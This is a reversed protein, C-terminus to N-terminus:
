SEIEPEDLDDVEFDLHKLRPFRKRLEDELRDVEDALAEMMREGFDHAFKEHDFDPRELQEKVWDVHSKAIVRGDYEIEAKLRFRDAALIRTKVDRVGVVSPEATLFAVAGEEVDKPIAPGLILQRNRYGLWIAVLGLLLGIAISSAADFRPDGTWYALGIGASAVLVGLTAVFDEFLVALVTPDSTTKIFEIFGKDGKDASVARLAMLFVFGDMLFSTGLVGWTLMGVHLEPPDFLTHVGHYVTVGCGLIFIGVASILAFLFREAGYGYHFMADAQKESRRIGLYLLGQNGTDAFSHVAESMMAGSGSVAFAVFKLATLISNGVLAAIVANRGAAAM